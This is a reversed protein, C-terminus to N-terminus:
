PSTGVTGPEVASESSRAFASRRAYRAGREGLDSAGADRRKAEAAVVGNQEGLQARKGGHVPREREDLEVRVM